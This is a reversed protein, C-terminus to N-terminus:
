GGGQLEALKRQIAARLGKPARTADGYGKQAAKFDLEALAELTTAQRLADWEPGNGARPIAPTTLTAKGGAKPASM